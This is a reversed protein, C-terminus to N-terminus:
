RPWDWKSLSSSPPWVPLDEGVLLDEGHVAGFIALVLPPQGLGLLLNGLLLDWLREPRLVRD